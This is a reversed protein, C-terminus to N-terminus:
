VLSGEGHLVSKVTSLHKNIKVLKKLPFNALRCANLMVDLLINTKHM